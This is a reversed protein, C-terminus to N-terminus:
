SPVVRGITSLQTAKIKEQRCFNWRESLNQKSKTVVMQTMRCLFDWKTPKFPKWYMWFWYIINLDDFKPKWCLKSWPIEDGNWPCLLKEAFFVRKINGHMFRCFPVNKHIFVCKLCKWIRFKGIETNKEKKSTFNIHLWLIRGPGITSWHLLESFCFKPIHSLKIIKKLGQEQTTFM